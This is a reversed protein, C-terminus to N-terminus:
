KPTEIFFISGENEKSEFYITGNHLEIITKIISMGLGVPEEGRLGTRIAKTFRDFLYPHMDESIGIGNDRVAIMVTQQQDKIDVEIVGDDATFKIANSILNNIVQM